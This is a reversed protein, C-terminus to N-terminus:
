LLLFPQLRMPLRERLVLAKPLMPRMGTLLEGETEDLAKRM